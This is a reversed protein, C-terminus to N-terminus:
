TTIVCQRPRRNMNIDDLTQRWQRDTMESARKPAGPKAEISPTEVPKSEGFDIRRLADAFEEDTMKRADKPPNAARWAAESEYDSPHKM